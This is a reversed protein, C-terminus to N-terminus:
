RGIFEPAGLVVWNEMYVHCRAGRVPQFHVHLNWAGPNDNDALLGVINIAFVPTLPQNPLCFKPWPAYYLKEFFEVTFGNDCEFLYGEKDIVYTNINQIPKAQM